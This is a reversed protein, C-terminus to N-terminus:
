RSHINCSVHHTTGNISYIGGAPCAPAGNPFYNPDNTIDTLATPWSNNESYYVEIQTNITAINTQCARAKATASNRSMRPIAIVVLTVVALIMVIVTLEVRTHATRRKMM